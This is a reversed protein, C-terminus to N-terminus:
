ASKRLQLLDKHLTLVVLSLAMRNARAPEYGDERLRHRAWSFLEVDRIDPPNFQLQSPFKDSSFDAPGGTYRQPKQEVLGRLLQTWMWVANPVRIGNELHDASVSDSLPEAAEAALGEVFGDQTVFYDDQLLNKKMESIDAVVNAATFDERVPLKLAKCAIPIIHGLRANRVLEKAQAVGMSAKLAEFSFEGAMDQYLAQYAEDQKSPAGNELLKDLQPSFREIADRYMAVLEEKRQYNADVAQAAFSACSNAVIDAALEAGARWDSLTAAKQVENHLEEGVQAAFPSVVRLGESEDAFIGQREVMTLLRSLPLRGAQGEREMPVLRGERLLFSEIQDGVKRAAKPDEALMRRTPGINKHNWKVLGSDQGASAETYATGLKAWEWALHQATAAFHLLLGEKGQPDKLLQQLDAEPRGFVNKIFASARNEDGGMLKSAFELTAEGAHHAALNSLLAAPSQVANPACLGDHAPDLVFARVEASSRCTKALEDALLERQSKEGGKTSKLEGSFFKRLLIRSIEQNPREEWGEHRSIAGSVYGVHQAIADQQKDISLRGYELGQLKGSQVPQLVKKSLEQLLTTAFQPLQELDASDQLLFNDAVNRGSTGIVEAVDCAIMSKAMEPLQKGKSVVEDLSAAKLYTSVGAKLTPLLVSQVGATALPPSEVSAQFGDTPAPVGSEAAVRPKPVSGALTFQSSQIQNM